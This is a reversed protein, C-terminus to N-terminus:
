SEIEKRPKRAPIGAARREREKRERYYPRLRERNADRWALVCERCDGTTTKPHLGNRCVTQEAVGQRGKRRMDAMNDAQTGVFLHEPNVCAPVDCRHLVSMGDPIPGFTWEWSLRHALQQRGNICFVGYGTTSTPNVPFLWCTATKKVRSWFVEPTNPTNKPM